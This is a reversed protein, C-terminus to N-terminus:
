LLPPLQKYSRVENRVLDTIIEEATPALCFDADKRDKLRFLEKGYVNWRGTEVWPEKPMLHPLWVELGGAANMEERIINEVKRLVRVGMPLWEYIGSAVKRILGARFMLKASVADCEAPAQRLTPLYYQSMKM